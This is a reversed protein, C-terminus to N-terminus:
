HLHEAAIIKAAKRAPYFTAILALLSAIFVTSLVDIFNLESPLANVFYIDGSLVSVDFLYETISVIQPLYLALLIGSAVGYLIGKAASTLGAFMFTKVLLRQQAGMTKLIAIQKQKHKITMMLTVVINFCAVAIVLALVLYVIFKVLLIDQYLHGHTRTWDSMYVPYPFSYGLRYTIEKAQFPDDFYLQIGQGQQQLQILENLASLDIVALLKDMEGGMSLQGALSFYHLKPASFSNDNPNPLLLGVRQGPVLANAQIIQQGLWIEPHSYSQNADQPYSSKFRHLPHSQVSLSFGLLQLAQLNAKDQLMANTRSYVFANAVGPQQKLQMMANRADPLGDNSVAVLEGHPISSLLQNQLASTLGNLVSLLVILVCCGLAIGTMAAHKIFRSSGKQAQTQLRKALFWALSM